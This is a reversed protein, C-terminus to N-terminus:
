ALVILMAYLAPSSPLLVKLETRSATFILNHIQTLFIGQVLPCPTPSTTLVRTCSLLTQVSYPGLDVLATLLLSPRPTGTAILISQM